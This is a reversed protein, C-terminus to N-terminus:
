ETLSHNLQKKKWILPTSGTILKFQRSFNAHESYGVMEAIVSLSEDPYNLLYEKSKNIRLTNIWTNFNMGEERNILTSLVTRGIGLQRAMTEINIGSELFYQNGIIQNKLPQWDQKIRLHSHHGQTPDTKEEVMAPEVITYIKNYKVYELAFGFYFVSYILTFIWDYKQPFLYSVMAIIGVTLASFFAVRVWSLKLWIDESFFDMMRSKSDKEEKLFLWTYYILQFIYFAYFILRVWLTPNNLYMPIENLHAIVPDGYQTYFIGYFIGLVIIPSFQIAINKTTIYKPNLLTILAFTFLFAQFSSIGIGLFTFLERANDSLKFILILLSLASLIFYSAAIVKLSIRYKKLGEKLPIPITVFITGMALCVTSIILNSVFHLSLEM